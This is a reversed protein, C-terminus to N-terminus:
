KGTAMRQVQWGGPGCAWTSDFSGNVDYPKGDPTSGTQHFRGVVHWEHGAQVLKDVTLENSSVTFGHFGDLFARVAAAGQVPKAGPNDVVGNTGFLRAISDIDQAKQLDAYRTIMARIPVRDCQPTPGAAAAAALLLLM